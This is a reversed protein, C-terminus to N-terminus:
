RRGVLRAVVLREQKDIALIYGSRTIAAVRQIRATTRFPVFAGTARIFAYIHGAADIYPRGTVPDFVIAHVVPTFGNGDQHLGAVIGEGGEVLQGVGSDIPPPVCFIWIDSADIPNIAMTSPSTYLMPCPRPADYDGSVRAGNIEDLAGDYHPGVYGVIFRMPNAPDIAGATLRVYTDYSPMFTYTTAWTAGDNTSRYVHYDDMAYNISPRVASRFLLSGISNGMDFSRVKVGSRGGNVSRYIAASTAYIVNDPQRPNPSISVVDTIPSRRTWSSLTPSASRYLGSSTAVYVPLAGGTVGIAQIHSLASAPVVLPSFAAAAPRVPLIILACVIWAIIAANRSVTNM